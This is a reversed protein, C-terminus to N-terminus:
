TCGDPSLSARAAGAYDPFMTADTVGYGKLLSRVRPAHQRDLVFKQLSDDGLLDELPSEEWVADWSSHDIGGGVLHTTLYGRQAVLNANGARTAHVLAFGKGNPKLGCPTMSVSRPEGTKPPRLVWLAIHKDEANKDPLAAFYAGVFPNETWDLFRTPLRNHQALAILAVWEDLPWLIGFRLVLPLTESNQRFGELEGRFRYSDNPIALGIEDCASVFRSLTEIEERVQQKLTRKKKKGCRLATALLQWSADACGRFLTPLGDAPLDRFHGSAPSISLLFDEADKCEIVKPM